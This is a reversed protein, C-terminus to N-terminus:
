QLIHCIGVSHLRYHRYFELNARKEMKNVHYLTMSCHFCFRRLIRRSQRKEKGRSPKSSSSRTKISCAACLASATSRTAATAPLANAGTRRAAKLADLYFPTKQRARRNFDIGSVEVGDVGCREYLRLLAPLDGCGNSDAKVIMPFDAGCAERVARLIREILRFRNELSGGYEDTRLNEEPNLFNSLLYGHANHVQVGDAGCDKCKKAAFAFQEVLRDLEELTFDEPHKPPAGNVSGVGKIGSHSLQFFLKGGYRHVGDCARRLLSEDTTEDLVPWGADARQMKDVCFHGTIVLGVENKVLEILTDAWLPTM